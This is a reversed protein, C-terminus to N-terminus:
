EDEFRFDAWDPTWGVRDNCKMKKFLYVKNQQKDIIFCVDGAKVNFVLDSTGDVPQKYVNISKLAVVKIPRPSCGVVLLGILLVLWKM